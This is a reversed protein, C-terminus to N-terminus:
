PFVIRIAAYRISEHVVLLGFRSGRHGSSSTIESRIPAQLAVLAQADFEVHGEYKTGLSVSKFDGSRPQILEPSVEEFSFSRKTM